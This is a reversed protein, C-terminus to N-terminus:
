SATLSAYYQEKDDESFALVEGCVCKFVPDRPLWDGVQGFIVLKEGCGCDLVLREAYPDLQM